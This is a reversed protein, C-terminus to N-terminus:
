QQPLPVGLSGLFQIAFGEAYRLLLFGLQPFQARGRAEGPEAAVLIVLGFGAAKERWDVAPEGFAEARGIEFRGLRQEVLQHSGTTVWVGLEAAM